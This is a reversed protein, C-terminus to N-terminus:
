KRKKKKKIKKKNGIKSERKILLIGIILFLSIFIISIILCPVNWFRICGEAMIEEFAFNPFPFIKACFVMTAGYTVIPSKM